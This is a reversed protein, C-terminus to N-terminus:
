SRVFPSSRRTPANAAICRAFQVASRIEQSQAFNLQTTVEGYHCMGKTGHSYGFCDMPIVIRRDPMESRFEDRLVTGLRRADGDVHGLNEGATALVVASADPQTNEVRRAHQKRWVDHPQDRPARGLRQGGAGREAENQAIRIGGFGRGLSGLGPKGNM